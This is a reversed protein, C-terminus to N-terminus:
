IRMGMCEFFVEASVKSAGYLSEPLLPGYGEAIPVQAKDGFVTTSSPFFIKKIKNDRMASLISYLGGVNDIFYSQPHKLAHQIDSEDALHYIASCNRSVRNIFDGDNVNGIELSFNPKCIVEELNEIKGKFHDRM